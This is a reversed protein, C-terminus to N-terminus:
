DSADDARGYFSLRADGHAVVRLRVLADVNEPLLTKKFHHTALTGGPALLRQAAILALAREYLDAFYPPDFYVLEFPVNSRALRPLERFLDGAVVRAGSEPGCLSLNKRLVALARTSKEVFTVQGAGRSLAEIGMSGSGACIDLFHAGVIREGVIDFFCERLKGSPPRVSLDPVSLLRRGRLRGANVNM